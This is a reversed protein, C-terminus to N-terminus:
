HVRESGPLCKEQKTQDKNELACILGIHGPGVGASQYTINYIDNNNEARSVSM